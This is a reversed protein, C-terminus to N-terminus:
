CRHHEPRDLDAREGEITFGEEELAKTVTFLDGAACFVQFTEDEVEVDEAGAELAAMMVEDEDLQEKPITVQGRREFQWAVCGSEGLSGGGKSFINRVEAVTRNKNDTLVEVLIAVGSPGYGEYMLEEYNIGDLDGTGRKIAREINERPM